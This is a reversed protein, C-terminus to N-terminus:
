QSTLNQCRLVKAVKYNANCSSGGWWRYPDTNHVYASPSPDQTMGSSTYYLPNYLIAEHLTTQLLLKLILYWVIIADHPDKM